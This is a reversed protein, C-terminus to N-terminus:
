KKNEKINKKSTVSELDQLNLYNYSLDLFAMLRLDQFDIIGICTISNVLYFNYALILNTIQFTQIKITMAFIM